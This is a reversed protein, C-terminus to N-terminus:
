AELTKDLVNPAFYTAPKVRKVFLYSSTSGFIQLNMGDLVGLAGLRGQFRIQSVRLGKSRSKDLVLPMWGYFQLLLLLILHAVWRGCEMGM